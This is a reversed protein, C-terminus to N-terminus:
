IGQKMKPPILVASITHIVGNQCIINGQTIEADNVYISGNSSTINLKEGELTKISKLNILDDTSLSDGPVVHYKLVEILTKNNKRLDELTSNQLKGFAYNTPVFVTFPGKRLINDFKAIDIMKNFTSFPDITDLGAFVNLQQLIDYNDSLQPPIFQVPSNRLALAYNLQSDEEAISNTFFIILFVLILYLKGM